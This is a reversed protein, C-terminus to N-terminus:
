VGRVQGNVLVFRVVLLVLVRVLDIGWHPFVRWAVLQIRPTLHQHYFVSRNDGFGIAPLIVNLGGIEINDRPVKIHEVWVDYFM